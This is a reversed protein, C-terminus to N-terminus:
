FPLGQHGLSELVKSIPVLGDEDEDVASVSSPRDVHVFLEHQDVREGDMAKLAARVCEPCTFTRWADSKQCCICKPATIM